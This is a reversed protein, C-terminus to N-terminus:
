KKVPMHPSELWGGFIVQIGRWKRSEAARVVRDPMGRGKRYATNGM